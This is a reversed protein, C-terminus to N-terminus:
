MHSTQLRMQAQIMWSRRAALGDPSVESGIHHGLLQEFSQLVSDLIRVVEIQTHQTCGALLKM